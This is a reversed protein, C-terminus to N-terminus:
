IPICVSLVIYKIFLDKFFFFINIKNQEEAFYLVVRGGLVSFVPQGLSLHRQRPECQVQSGQTFILLDWKASQLFTASIKIVAQPKSTHEASPLLEQSPQSGPHNPSAEQSQERQLTSHWAM